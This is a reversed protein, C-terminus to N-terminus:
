VKRWEDIAGRKAASRGAGAVGPAAAQGMEHRVRFSIQHHMDSLASTILSSASHQARSLSCRHTQHWASALDSAASGSAGQGM